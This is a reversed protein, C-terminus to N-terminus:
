VREGASPVAEILRSVKEELEEIKAELAIVRAKTDDEVEFTTTMYEQTQSIPAEIGGVPCQM